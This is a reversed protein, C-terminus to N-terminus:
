RRDWAVGGQDIGGVDALTMGGRKMSVVGGREM